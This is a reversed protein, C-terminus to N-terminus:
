SRGRSGRLFPHSVWSRQQLLVADHIAGAASGVVTALRPRDDLVNSHAAPEAERHPEEGAHREEGGLGIGTKHPARPGRRPCRTRVTRSPWPRAPPARAAEKVRRRRAPRLGVRAGLGSWSGAGACCRSRGSWRACCSAPGMGAQPGAPGLRGALERQTRTRAEAAVLRRDSIGAVSGPGAAGPASCLGSPRAGAPEPEPWRYRVGQGLGDAAALFRVGARELAATVAAVSGARPGRRGVELATVAATSIGAEGAVRAQTWGLLDRAARLLRGRLVPDDPLM